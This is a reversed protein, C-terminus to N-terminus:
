GDVNAPANEKNGDAVFKDIDLTLTRTDNYPKYIGTLKRALSFM